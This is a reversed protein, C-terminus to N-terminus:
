RRRKEAAEAPFRPAAIRIGVGGRRMSRLPESRLEVTTVKGRWYVFRGDTLDWYVEGRTPVRIGGLWAYDSFRGGWGANVEHGDVQGPRAATEVARIDGTPDFRLQVTLRETRIETSVAVTRADVQRWSLEHNASMAQPVWPLEALYRYAEGLDVTAGAQQMVPFGLASVRLAGAGAAYGDHVKLALLPAIAFRAEWAFAVRDVAFDEVATFRMPRGGPRKLMEGGQTIHVARAGRVDAPVARELYAAILDPLAV